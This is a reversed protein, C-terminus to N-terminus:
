PCRSAPHMHIPSHVRNQTPSIPTFITDEPVEDAFPIPLVIPPSQTSNLHQDQFPSIKEHFVVDRSVFISHSHLDYLKYGKMSLPYGIFM